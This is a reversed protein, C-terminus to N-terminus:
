TAIGNARSKKLAPDQIQLKRKGEYIHSSPSMDWAFLNQSNSDCLTKALEKSIQIRLLILFDLTTM